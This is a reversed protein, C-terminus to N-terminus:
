RATTEHEEAHAPVIWSIV